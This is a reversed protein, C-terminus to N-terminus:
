RSRPHVSSVSNTPDSLHILLYCLWPSLNAKAIMCIVCTIHSFKVVSRRQLKRFLCCISIITRHCLHLHNQYAASVVRQFCYKPLLIQQLSLFIILQLIVNCINWVHFCFVTISIELIPKLCSQTHWWPFISIHRWFPQGWQKLLISMPTKLMSSGSQFWIKSESRELSLVKM